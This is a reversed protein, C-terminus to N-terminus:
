RGCGCSSHDGLLSRESGEGEKLRLISSLQPGCAGAIYLNTGKKERKIRKEIYM